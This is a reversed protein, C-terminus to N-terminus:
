AWFLQGRRDATDGQDLKISLSEATGFFLVRLSAALAFRIRALLSFTPRAIRRCM